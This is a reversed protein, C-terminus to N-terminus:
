EQLDNTFASANMGGGEWNDFLTKALDQPEHDQDQVGRAHALLMAGLLTTITHMTPAPSGTTGQLARKPARDKETYSM